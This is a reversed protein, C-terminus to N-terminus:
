TRAEDDLTTELRTIVGDRFTFVNVGSGKGGPLAPSFCTWAVTASSGTTDIRAYEIRMEPLPSAMSARMVAAIQARGEHTRPAGSFPEVYAADEAFLSMMSAEHSLGAQM